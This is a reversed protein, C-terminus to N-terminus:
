SAFKTHHSWLIVGNVVIFGFVAVVLTEDIM